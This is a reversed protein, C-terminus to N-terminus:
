KIENVVKYRELIKSIKEAFIFNFNTLFDQIENSFSLFEAKKENVNEKKILHTFFDKSQIDEIEEDELIYKIVADANKITTIFCNAMTKSFKLCLKKKMDSFDIKLLESLNESISSGEIISLIRAIILQFLELLAPEIFFIKKFLLRGEKSSSINFLAIGTEKFITLKEKVNLNYDSLIKKIEEMFKFYERKFKNDNNDKYKLKDYKMIKNELQSFLNLINEEGIKEILSILSVLFDKFEPNIEQNLKRFRLNNIAEEIEEESKELVSYIEKLNEIEQLSPFREELVKEAAVFNVKIDNTKQKFEENSCYQLIKEKKKMEKQNLNMFYESIAQWLYFQENKELFNCFINQKIREMKEKKKNPQEICDFKSVVILYNKKSIIDLLLSKNQGQFLHKRFYDFFKTISEEDQSDIIVIFGDIDVSEIIKNFMLNFINEKKEDDVKNPQKYSDNIGPMDLFDIYDLLDELKESKEVQSLAWINIELIWVEFKEKKRYEENLEKIKKEVEKKDSLIISPNNEQYFKVEENKLCSNNRIKTCFSTCEDSRAALIKEGIIANLLTSKGAKLSGFVAIAVRQNMIKKLLLSNKIEQDHKGLLSINVLFLEHKLILKLFDHDSSFFNSNLFTQNQSLEFGLSELNTEFQSYFLKLKEKLKIKKEM